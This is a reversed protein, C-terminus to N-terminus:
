RNTIVSTIQAFATLFLAHRTESDNYSEILVAYDLNCGGDLGAAPRRSYRQVRGDTTGQAVKAVGSSATVEVSDHCPFSIQQVCEQKSLQSDLAIMFILTQVSIKRSYVSYPCDVDREHPMLKGESAEGHRRM